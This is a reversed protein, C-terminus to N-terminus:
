VVSIKRGKTKTLCKGTDIRLKENPLKQDKKEGNVKFISKNEEQASLKYLLKGPIKNKRECICRGETSFFDSKNAKCVNLDNLIPM